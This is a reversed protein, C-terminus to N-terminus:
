FEEINENVQINNNKIYEKVLELTDFKLKSFLEADGPGTPIWIGWKETDKLQFLYSNDKTLEGNEVKKNYEGLGIDFNDYIESILDDTYTGNLKMFIGYKGSYAIKDIYM